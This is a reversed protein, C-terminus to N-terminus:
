SAQGSGGGASAPGDKEVSTNKGHRLAKARSRRHLVYAITGGVLGAFMLDFGNGTFTRAVPILCAGLLLASWDLLDKANRVLALLFYVPTVFLLGAAMAVPLSVALLYGIITGAVACVMLTHAVGMFFPIRGQEPMEPMRRISEVWTTVAIHHVAYFPMWKKSSGRLWPLLTVCMPVLRVSSLSVSLAIAPLALGNILAAFFIVQAPGAWILVTAVIAFALSVDAQVALGGIGLFTLSLYLFPGRSVVRLGDAFYGRATKLKVM